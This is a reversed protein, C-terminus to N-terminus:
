EGFLTEITGAVVYQVSLRPKGKTMGNVGIQFGNKLVFLFGSGRDALEELAEGVYREVVGRM